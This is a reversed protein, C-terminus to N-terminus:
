LPLCKNKMFGGREFLAFIMLQTVERPRESASSEESRGAHRGGIKLKSM